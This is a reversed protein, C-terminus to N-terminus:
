KSVPTSTSFSCVSVCQLTCVGSSPNHRCASACSNFTGGDKRCSSETLGIECENFKALWIGNNVVCERSVRKTKDLCTKTPMSASPNGHKEWGSDGCIWTDEAGRVLILVVAIIIVLVVLYIIKKM